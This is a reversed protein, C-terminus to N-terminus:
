WNRRMGDVPNCWTRLQKGDQRSEAPKACAISGSEVRSPGVDGLLISLLHSCFISPCWKLPYSLLSMFPTGLQAEWHGIRDAWFCTPAGSM